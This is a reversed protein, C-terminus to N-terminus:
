IIVDDFGALVRQLLTADIVNIEGDNNTDSVISREGDPETFQAIYRQIECVDRINVKGDGNADGVSLGPISTFDILATNDSVAEEAKYSVVELKLAETQSLYSILKQRSIFFSITEGGGIENLSFTELLTDDSGKVMLSAGTGIHSNNGITALIGMTGNQVGIKATLQLQTYGVSLPISDSCQAASAVIQYDEKDKLAEDLPVSILIDKTEGSKILVSVSQQAITEDDKKVTFYINNEDATGNNKVSLTVPLDAGAEVEESNYSVDTIAIDHYEPIVATCLSSSETVDNDGIQATSRVYVCRTGGATDIFSANRVYEGTYSIQLPNSWLGSDDSSFAYIEASNENKIVAYLKDNVFQYSDLASLEESMLPVITKNDSCGFIMSDGYFTLMTKNGVTHRALKSENFSNNTLRTVTNDSSIVYVESDEASEIDGNVDMAFATSDGANVLEYIKKDTTYINEASFTNNQVIARRITETGGSELVANASNNKWVVSVAGNNIALSPAYDVTDNDSLRLKNGFTKTVPNYKVFEIECASALQQMTINEDFVRKANTWAIYINEGDTIIDPYFDATSDDDVIEPTSWTGSENQYVSYYLATHNGTSRAPDDGIWIMMLTNGERILKPAAADYIDTQLATDTFAEYAGAGVPSGAKNDSDLWESQKNIYSRHIKMDETDVPISGVAESGSKKDASDYYTWGSGNNLKFLTKKNSYFFSNVSVGVEGFLTAKIRKPNSSFTVENKGDGYVSVDAVHAIGTGASATIQPLVLKVDSQFSLKEDIGDYSLTLQSDTSITGKLKLVVPLVGVVTQWEGSMSGDAKLRALGSGSTIRGDKLTAEYYGYFDINLAKNMAGKVKGKAENKLLEKGKETNEKHGKVFNKFSSWSNVDMSQSFDRNFGIAVKLNYGDSEASIPVASLDLAVNGDGILPVNSPVTFQFNKDLKIDLPKSNQTKVTAKGVNNVPTNGYSVDVPLLSEDNDTVECYLRAVSLYFNLDDIKIKNWDQKSGSYYVAVLSRCESFAGWDIDTVTKPITVSVMETCMQFACKGIHKMSNPITVSTLKDCNFFSDEGITELSNGFVVSELNKCDFFAKDGINKVGDGIIIGKLDPCWYFAEDGIATVSDPIKIATLGKACAFADEEIATIDDPIETKGCGFLLTNTATEIIANCNNRSDYYENGSEVSITEVSECDYFAWNGINEVSRPIIISKLSRCEFFAGEGINTLSNNFAVSQLEGCDNFAFDGISSVNHGDLKDPIVIDTEDGLYGTIEATGDSLVRFSFNSEASGPVAFAHLFSVSLLIISLVIATIKRFLKM